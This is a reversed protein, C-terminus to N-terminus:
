ELPNDETSDLEAEQPQDGGAAAALDLEADSLEFSEARASAVFRLLNSPKSTDPPEAQAHTLAAQLFQELAQFSAFGHRKGTQPEELSFRIHTPQDADTSREEWIRLIYAWYRPPKAVLSM